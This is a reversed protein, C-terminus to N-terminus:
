FRLKPTAKHRSCRGQSVAQTGSSYNLGHVFVTRKHVSQSTKKSVNQTYM